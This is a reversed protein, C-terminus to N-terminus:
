QVQYGVAYIQQHTVFVAGSDTLCDTISPIAAPNSSDIDSKTKGKQAIEVTEESRMGQTMYTDTGNLCGNIKEVTASGLSPMVSTSTVIFRQTEILQQSIDQGSNNTDGGDVNVKITNVQTVVLNRTSMFNNSNGVVCPGDRFGAVQASGTGWTAGDTSVCLAKETAGGTNTYLIGNGELAASINTINTPLSRLGLDAAQFLLNSAQSNTALALSTMSMRMATVGLLTVVIVIILVAILAMGQQQNNKIQKIMM